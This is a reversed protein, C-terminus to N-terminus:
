NSHRRVLARACGGRPSRAPEAARPPPFTEHTIARAMLRRFRRGRRLRRARDQVAPARVAGVEHVRQPKTEDVRQLPAGGSVAALRATHEVLLKGRQKIAAPADAQVSWSGACLAGAGLVLSLALRGFLQKITM